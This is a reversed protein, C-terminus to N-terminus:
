ARACRLYRIDVAFSWAVCALTAAALAPAIAAGVAPSVLAILVLIQVVCVVKRSLREPLPEALWPRALSAAWFLYRALGLLLVWAGVKGSQFALFALVLALACDVEMDFRAGFGSVLGTRRALWGDVGDLALAASALGALAWSAPAPPALAAGFLVAVLAMRGLTVTNAPGFEAHPYGRGLTSIVAAAGALFLTLGAAVATADGLAPGLAALSAGAAATAAFAGPLPTGLRPPVRDAIGAKSALHPPHDVM